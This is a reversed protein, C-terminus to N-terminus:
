SRKRKTAPQTKAFPKFTMEIEVEGYDVSEIAMVLRVVETNKPKKYGRERWYDAYQLKPAIDRVDKRIEALLARGIEDM